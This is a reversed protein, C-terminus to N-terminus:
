QNVHVKVKGFTVEMHPNVEMRVTTQLFVIVTHTNEAADLIGGKRITHNMRVFSFFSYCGHLRIISSSYQAKTFEICTVFKSISYNFIDMSAVTQPADQSLTFLSLCLLIIGFVTLTPRRSM